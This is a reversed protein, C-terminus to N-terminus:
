RASSASTTRTSRTRSCRRSRASGRSSTRSSTPSSRSRPTPATSSAALAHLAERGRGRRARRGRVRRLERALPRLARGAQRVARAARRAREPRCAGAADPVRLHVPAGDRRRRGGRRRRRARGLDVDGVHAAGAQRDGRRPARARPEDGRGLRGQLPRRRAARAARRGRALVVLLPVRDRGARVGAEADGVARRHVGHALLVGLADRARLVAAVTRRADDGGARRPAPVQRRRRRVRGRGRGDPDRQRPQRRPEHRGRRDRSREDRAISADRWSPNRGPTSRGARARTPRLPTRRRRASGPRGPARAARSRPPRATSARPRAVRRGRSRRRGARRGRQRARSAARRRRGPGRSSRPPARSHARLELPDRRGVVLGPERVALEVRDRRHPQELVEGVVVREEGLRRPQQLGAPAERDGAAVPEVVQEARVLVRGVLEAALSRLQEGLQAQLERARRRELQVLQGLRDRGGGVLELLGGLGVPFHRRGLQVVM